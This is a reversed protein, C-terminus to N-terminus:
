ERIFSVSDKLMPLNQKFETNLLVRFFNINTIGNYFPSYNKDPLLVANLNMYHYKIDVPVSFERLGHDSLLCIIPPKASSAKIHDILKILEKNCYKLYSIYAKGNTAFGNINELLKYDTEKGTSDFYYPYHPYVLHSYVFKPKGTKTSAIKQTLSYIKNNNHFDYYVLGNKASKLNLDTILHFWLDRQVRYLFTQSTIPKTKTQMFTPKAVSPQGDLDFISYNFIDYGENKLYQITKSNKITEACIKLDKKNSNQGDIGTLYELNLSSAMSHYTFNYNSLSNEIIHFGRKTLDNEFGSNDFQFVEQLAQKGSYGDTIILYFDPKNCNSCPILENRISYNKKEQTAILYTLTLLDIVIFLLFLYNLYQTLKYLTRNRKKLVIFLALFFVIGCLVLVSYRSIFSGPFNNIIFDQISGFFFNFALIFFSFISAKYINRFFFWSFVILVLAATLYAGVLLLSDKVPIVNYYETFGRLVFFIPLLLVFGPYTKIIHNIRSM